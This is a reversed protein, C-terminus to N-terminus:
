AYNKCFYTFVPLINFITLLKVDVKEKSNKNNKPTGPQKTNNKPKSTAQPPTAQTPPATGQAPPTNKSPAAM